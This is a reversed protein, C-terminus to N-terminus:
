FNNKQSSIISIIWNLEKLVRPHIEDPGPSKPMKLSNFARHMKDETININDLIVHVTREFAPLEGLLKVNRPSYVLFFTM